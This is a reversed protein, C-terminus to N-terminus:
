RWFLWWPKNIEIKFSKKADIAEKLDVAPQMAGNVKNQVKNPMKSMGERLIRMEGEIAGQRLILEKSNENIGELDQDIQNVVSLIDKFGNRIEKRLIKFEDNNM